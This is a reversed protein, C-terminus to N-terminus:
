TKANAASFGLGRKDRASLRINLMKDLKRSGRSFKNLKLNAQELEHKLEKVNAELDANKVSFMAIKSTLQDKGLKIMSFEKSILGHNKKLKLSEEYLENYAIRLSDLDDSDSELTDDGELDFNKTSVVSSSFALYNVKENSSTEKSSSSINSDYDSLSANMAPKRQARLHTPCEFEMHEFGNCGHCQVSSEDKKKQNEKDKKDFNKWITKYFFKTNGKKKSESIKEGIIFSGNVIATLKGYFNDFSEDDRMLLEEFKFVNLQFKSDKIAKTGEHTLALIDWAEKTTVYNSIRMFKDNWKSPDKISVVGDVAGEPM